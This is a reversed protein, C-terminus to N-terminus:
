AAPPRGAGAGAPAPERPSDVFISPRLWHSVTRTLAQDGEISLDGANIAERYTRDGMWVESMTRVSCNFYVDIDKGPDRLCVEAREPNVILWWDSQERLDSFKFKIVTEAGKIKERDISRELYLMLFEADFDYDVITNRAWIVGWEGLAFLVPLLAECAETPFYEYGKQGPIKRRIVMNQQELTKLRSTLLAPSTDGLGRQLTNFRRGGMLLERLIMITWREGRIESAKAIPCFQNYNM